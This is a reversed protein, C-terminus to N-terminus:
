NPKVEAHYEIKNIYFIRRNMEGSERNENYIRQEGYAFLTNGYWEELGEVEPNKSKIEDHEYSLRVPNITNGEVIENGSIVKSRIENEDLYMLVIKDDYANVKVFEDLTFTTVDDIGFSNDWIINGAKDFAVVIAHTYKYGMFGNNYGGYYNSYSAGYLSSMSSYGSYRTYYAEAILIYADERQIIDHIVLQYSFNPKKGKEAKRQIRAKIRSERREKMYGFFNNLDAYAYYKIFQQRGNLFRSLYLGKSFTSSRKSYTGVVYQFGGFFNTSAGDILNKEDANILNDQILTGSSTYTRARISNKKNRMRQSTIVTFVDSVDDTILELIDNNDGYFGPIVRPVREDMDFTIMVPRTNVYGGLLMSNGLVEFETLQVPFVTSIDIEEVRTTEIDITYVMLDVTQYRNKNFLLYFVGDYYDYGRFNSEFPITILRTWKVNLATDVMHLIWKYGKGVREYTEIVALLGNEEGSILTFETDADSIDFELRNPQSIYNSQPEEDNKQAISLLPIFLLLLIISRLQM